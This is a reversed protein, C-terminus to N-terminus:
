IVLLAATNEIVIKPTHALTNLSKEKKKFIRLFKKKEKQNKNLKEEIVVKVDLSVIALRNNRLVHM